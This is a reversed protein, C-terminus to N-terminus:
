GERAFLLYHEELDDVILRGGCRDCAMDPLRGDRQYEDTHFLQDREDGCASCVMPALFSQVKGRGLFGAVM